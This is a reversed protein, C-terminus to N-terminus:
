KDVGVTTVGNDLRPKEYNSVDSFTYAYIEPLINNAETVRRRLAV